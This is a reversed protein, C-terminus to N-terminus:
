LHGGVPLLRTGQPVGRRTEPHPFGQLGQLPRKDDATL